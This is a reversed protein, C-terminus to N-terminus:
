KNAAAKEEMVKKAVADLADGSTQTYYGKTPATPLKGDTPAGSERLRTTSSKKIKNLQETLDKIQTNLESVKAEHAKTNATITALDIKHQREFQLLQAAGAILIARMEPSDDAKVQEITDRVEKAWSNYEAIEKKKEETADAAPTLDKLWAMKELHNSLLSFTNTNHASAQAEFEKQRDKTYQAINTKADQMAQERKYKIREIESLANEVTRKTDPDTIAKIIPDMQVQDPGGIEKIKDIVSQQLGAKKLQTYVFSRGTEVDKDFTKFKPDSEIDFKARFQRLEDLEKATSEPIPNKTKAELEKIKAEAAAIKTELSSIEQAAKIKVQSFAEAAKPSTNPHLQPSDKFIENARKTLEEKKKDEETPEAAPPTQAAPAPKDGPKGEVPKVPPENGDGEKAKKEETKVKALADLADSASQIAAPEPTTGGDVNQELVKAVVNANHTTPDVVQTPTNPTEAM